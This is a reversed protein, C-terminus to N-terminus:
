APGCKPDVGDVVACITHFEDRPFIDEFNKGVGDVETIRVSNDHGCSITQLFPVYSRGKKEKKMM